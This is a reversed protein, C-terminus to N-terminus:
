SGRSFGVPRVMLVEVQLQLGSLSVEVGMLESKDEGFMLLEISDDGYLEGRTEGGDEANTEAKCDGYMEGLAMVGFGCSFGGGAAWRDGGTENRPECDSSM